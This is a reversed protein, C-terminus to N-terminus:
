PKKVAPAALLDRVQEFLRVGNLSKGPVERHMFDAPAPVTEGWRTEPGFILFSDWASGRSLGLPKLPEQFLDGAATDPTWFHMARSDPVFPAAFEADAETEHEKYPGWVVYVRLRDDSIKDLLYRQVVRASVRCYM